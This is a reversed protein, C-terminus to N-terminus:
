QDVEYLIQSIVAMGATETRLIRPGLSVAFAGRNQFIAVEEQSFGGEPGILVAISSGTFNRLSSKLTTKRENEYPVLVLDFESFLISDPTVLTGVNPIIGRRSQKAAEESVRQWREAKSLFTDKPISVCRETLMPIIESVGLEVCKQIVTEMKGAKPLGQFLTISVSPETDCPVSQGCRLVIGDKQFSDIVAECELGNGDCVIISDGEVLRLVRQIHIMDPGTLVATDRIPQKLFFRHMHTVRM